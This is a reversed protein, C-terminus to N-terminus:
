PRGEPLMALVKEFDRLARDVSGRAKDYIGGVQSSGGPAFMCSYFRDDAEQVSSTIADGLEVFEELDALEIEDRLAAKRVARFAGELGYLPTADAARSAAEGAQPGVGGLVRRAADVDGARGEQDIVAYMAWNARLVRLSEAADRIQAVSADISEDGPRRAAAPLPLLLPLHLVARRRASPAVFRAREGHPVRLCTVSMVVFGLLLGCRRAASAAACPM